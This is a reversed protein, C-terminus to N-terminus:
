KHQRYHWHHNFKPVKYSFSWFFPHPLKSSVIRSTLGIYTIVIDHLRGLYAQAYVQRELAAEPRLLAVILLFLLLLLLLFLFWFCGFGDGDCACTCTDKDETAKEDEDETVEEEEEKTM